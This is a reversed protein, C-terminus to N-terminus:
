PRVSHRPTERAKETVARHTAGLRALRRTGRGLASVALRFLRVLEKRQMQRARAEVAAARSDFDDYMYLM